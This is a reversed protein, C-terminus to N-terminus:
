ESYESSSTPVSALSLCKNAVSGVSSGGELAHVEGEESCHTLGLDAHMRMSLRCGGRVCM